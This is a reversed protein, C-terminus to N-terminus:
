LNEDTKFNLPSFDTSQTILNSNIKKFVNIAHNSIEFSKKTALKNLDKESNSEKITENIKQLYFQRLESKNDNIINEFTKYHPDMLVGTLKFIWYASKNNYNLGTEYKYESPTDTIGGFFPVFTSQASVGMSLWHISGIEPPYKENIQLLHSEQTKALSIPRYVNKNKSITPDFETGEYHSSLYKEADFIDILEEPKRIFKFNQSKPNDLTDSPNFMKQGYWVRPTNYITDMLDKTGFINRFNFTNKNKNLNNELVFTKINKSYLFNDNNFNIEQIAMQNAVVAYSDDPIRQAVWHHGSGIEFYWVSEKDSFLIGNTEAAGFKEILEGLRIVGEKASKIYPLVITIIAEESIGNKLLPDFGLVMDNAYTSETASMAVGYENIGDEEFLGENDTWEPTCTYKYRLSPLEITLENYKSKFINKEDFQERKKVIFRKPWSSKADENRGIITSGDITANKGILISTCASLKNINM